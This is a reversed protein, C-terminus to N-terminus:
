LWLGRIQTSEKKPFLLNDIPAPINSPTFIFITHSFGSCADTISPKYRSKAIDSETRALHPRFSPITLGLYLLEPAYMSIQKKM